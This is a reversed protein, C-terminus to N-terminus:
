AQLLITLLRKAINRPIENVGIYKGDSIEVAHRPCYLCGTSESRRALALPWISQSILLQESPCENNKAAVSYREQLCCTCLFAENVQQLITGDAGVFYSSSTDQLIVGTSTAAAAVSGTEFECGNVRILQRSEWITQKQSTVTFDVTTEETDQAQSKSTWRLLRMVMSKIQCWM